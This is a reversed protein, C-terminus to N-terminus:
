PGTRGQSERHEIAHTSRHQAEDDVVRAPAAGDACLRGQESWRENQSWVARLSAGTEVHLTLFDAAELRASGDDATRKSWAAWLAHSTSEDPEPPRGSAPTLALSRRLRTYERAGMGFLNRMMELPADARMLDRQLATAERERRLHALWPRFVARNLRIDLCHAKLSGARYLDELGLERLGAIEEPGFGMARLAPQDGEALCRLAYLMVATVLDAEKTGNM